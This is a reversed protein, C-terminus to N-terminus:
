APDGDRRGDLTSRVRESLTAAAERPPASESWALERAEAALAVEDERALERALLELARRQEGVHGNTLAGDVARLARELATGEEEVPRAAAVPVQRPAQRALLAAGALALALAMAFLWSALVAPRVRYSVPPLDLPNARWLQSVDGARLGRSLDGSGRPDASRATEIAQESLHSVVEVTPWTLHVFDAQSGFTEARRYVVTVPRFEFRKRELLGPVCAPVLCRLTMTYRLRTLDGADDREVLTGGVARYPELDTELRVLRPDLRRRDLVVTVEARLADGFRHLRPALTATAVIDGEPRLPAEGGDRTMRVLSVVLLLIGVGAAALGVLLRSRLRDSM